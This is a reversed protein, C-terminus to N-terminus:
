SAPDLITASIHKGDKSIECAIVGNKPLGETVMGDVSAKPKLVLVRYDRYENFSSDYNGTVWQAPNPLASLCKLQPGVRDLLKLDETTPNTSYTSEATLIMSYTQDYSYEKGDEDKDKGTTHEDCRVIMHDSVRIWFTDEEHSDDPGTAMTIKCAPQGSVTELSVFKYSQLEGGWSLKWTDGIKRKKDGFSAVLIAVTTEYDEFKAADPDEDSQSEMWVGTVDAPTKAEEGEARQSQGTLDCLLSYGHSDTAGKVVIRLKAEGDHQENDVKGTVTLKYDAVQGIKPSWQLDYDTQQPTLLLGFLAACVSIM